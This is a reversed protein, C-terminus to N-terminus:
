IRLCLDNKIRWKPFLMSELMDYGNKWRIVGFSSEVGLARNEIDKVLFQARWGNVLNVRMQPQCSKRFSSTWEM